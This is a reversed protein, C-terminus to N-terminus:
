EEWNLTINWEKDDNYAGIINGHVTGDREEVIEVILENCMKATLTEGFAYGAIVCAVCMMSLYLYMKQKDNM